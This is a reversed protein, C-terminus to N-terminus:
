FFYLNKTLSNTTKEKNIKFIQEVILFFFDLLLFLSKKWCKKIISKQTQFLVRSISYKYYRYIISKGNQRAGSLITKRNWHNMRIDERVQWHKGSLNKFTKWVLTYDNYFYIIGGWFGTLNVVFHCVISINLFKPLGSSVVSMEMIERVITFDGQRKRTKWVQSM